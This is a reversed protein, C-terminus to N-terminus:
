KKKEMKHPAKILLILPVAFEGVLVATVTVASYPPIVSVAFASVITMIVMVANRGKTFGSFLRGFLYAGTMVQTTVSFVAFVAFIIMFVSDIRQNTIPQSLQVSTIVPFDTVSMIRGTVLMATTLITCSLILKATFYRLAGKKCSESVLPALVAGTGMAGGMSFCLMFGDAFGSKDASFDIGSFDCRVVASIFDALLFLVGIFATIVASRSVAKMGTSSIYLCVLSIFGTIILRGKIGGSTELPIFIEDCVNWLRNLIFGGWLVLYILYFFEAWKETKGGRDAFLVLPLALMLQATIGVAYGLASWITISGCFCFLMFLDTILLLAALQNKTLNNM